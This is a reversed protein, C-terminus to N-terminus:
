RDYSGDQRGWGADYMKQIPHESDVEFAQDPLSSEIARILKCADAYARNIRHIAQAINSAQVMTLGDIQIQRTDHLAEMVRDLAREINIITPHYMM